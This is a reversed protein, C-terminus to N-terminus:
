MKFIQNNRETQIKELLLDYFDSCCYEGISIVDGKCEFKASKGHRPCVENEIKAIVKKNLTQNM